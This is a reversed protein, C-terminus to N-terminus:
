EAAAVAQKPVVERALLEIRHQGRQFRRGFARNENAIMVASDFVEEAPLVETIRLALADCRQEFGGAV